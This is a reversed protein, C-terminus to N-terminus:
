DLRRFTAIRGRLEQRTDGPRQSHKGDYVASAPELDSRQRKVRCCVAGRRRVLRQQDQVQGQTLGGAVFFPGPLSVEQWDMKQQGAATEAYENGDGFVLEWQGNLLVSNERSGEYERALSTLCGLGLTLLCLAKTLHTM